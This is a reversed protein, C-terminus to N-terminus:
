LAHDVILKWVAPLTWLTVVGALGPFHTDPELDWPDAQSPRVKTKYICGTGAKDALPQQPNQTPPLDM